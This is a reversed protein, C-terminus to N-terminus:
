FVSKKTVKSKANLLNALQRCNLMQQPQWDNFPGSIKPVDAFHTSVQKLAM